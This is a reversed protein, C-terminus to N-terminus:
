RQATAVADPRRLYLPLAPLVVRGMTAWRFLADSTAGGQSTADELSIQPGVDDQPWTEGITFRERLLGIMSAASPFEVEIAQADGSALLGRVADGACRAGMRAAAIEDTLALPGAIRSGQEDYDAWFVEVRRARTAVTVPGGAQYALVDLTSLGALPIGLTQSMAIATAIGVRLGTFPGPGVGVVIGALDRPALDAEALLQAIMPTLHEAHRTADVRTLEWVKDPSALAVTTAATATDFALLM